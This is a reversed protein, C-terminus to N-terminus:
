FQRQNIHDRIKYRLEIRNINQHSQSGDCIDKLVETSMPEDDLEDGSDLTNTEELSLLPPIISNEDSKDVSKDNSEVDELTGSLLNGEEFQAFTIINVTEGESIYCM